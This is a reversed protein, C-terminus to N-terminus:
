KLNLSPLKKNLQDVIINTIDFSANGLNVSKIDLIMSVDNKEIYNKLIPDLEKLLKQRAEARQKAVTDVAARREAQYAQIKKRLDDSKKKYEEQSLITKKALLDKEEKQLDKEKKNIKEQNDRFSKQLFEQAGKGAKSMNLIYKMDMYVIKQEASAYTSVLIFLTVVFIKVLYKM